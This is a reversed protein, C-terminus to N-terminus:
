QYIFNFNSLCLLYSLLIFITYFAMLMFVYPLLIFFLGPVETSVLSFVFFVPFIAMCALISVLINMGSVLAASTPLSEKKSLYSSYTVMCSFGVALAFFSQGLAFLIGKASFDSLNFKFFFALGESAGELTVARV